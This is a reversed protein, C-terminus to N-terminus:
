SQLNPVIMLFQAINVENGYLHGFTLLHCKTKEKEELQFVPPTDAVAKVFPWFSVQKCTTTVAKHELGWFPSGQSSAEQYALSEM